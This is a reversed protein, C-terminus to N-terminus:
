SKSFLREQFQQWAYQHMQEIFVDYIKKYDVGLSDLSQEWLKVDTFIKEEGTKCNILFHHCPNATGYGYIIGNDVNIMTVNVGGTFKGDKLKIFLLHWNDNYFHEPKAGAVNKLEYPKILPLRWLDDVQYEEYFNNQNCGMFVLFLLGLFQLKRM